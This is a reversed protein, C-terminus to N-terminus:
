SSRATRNPDQDGYSLRNDRVDGRNGTLHARLVPFFDHGSGPIGGVLGQHLTVQLGGLAKGQHGGIARQEPHEPVDLGLGLGTGGHPHQAGGLQEVVAPGEQPLGPMPDIVHLGLSGDQEIAHILPVLDM